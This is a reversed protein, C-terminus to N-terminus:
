RQTAIEEYLARYKLAADSWPHAVHMGNRQLQQWPAPVSPTAPQAHFAALARDVAALFGALTRESFVFGTAAHLRGPAADVVTEKLGGVCSVIPVTGYRLGYMQTLGCPEFRAPALLLDAGSLLLHALDEDYAIRVAIRGPHRRAAAALQSEIARDGRGVVVVQAGREALRPLAEILVDAMKQHTLRSMYALVPAAPLPALGMRERLVQKCRMKGRLDDAHYRAPIRPDGRPDWEDHDVGNLIGAVRDPRAKIVGELGFGFEPTLIEEAYSASVTALRDAYRLGAKLFSAKGFFEVGHPSFYSWPLGLAALVDPEFSGQFAMNHITFLTGARLKHARQEGAAQAEHALLAALPGTQWENLHVVEPRWAFPGRGLALLAGVRALLGFRLANDPWDEGNNDQYIGGPRAYLTPCDILCVPAASRPMRGSILATPGFHPLTGLDCRERPGRLADVVGPYAPLLLRVDCGQELLAKTLGGAYDGLGGTKMLPFAEPTVFLVRRMSKADKAAV